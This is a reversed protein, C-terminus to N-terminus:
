SKGSESENKSVETSNSMKYIDLSALLENNNDDVLKRLNAESFVPLDKETESIESRTDSKIETSNADRSPAENLSNDTLLSRVKKRNKDNLNHAVIEIFNNKMEKPITITLIHGDSISLLNGTKISFVTIRKKDSPTTEKFDDVSDFLVFGESDVRLSRPQVIFAKREDDSDFEIGKASSYKQSSSLFSNADKVITYKIEGGISEIAKEVYKISSWTSVNEKKSFKSKINLWLIYIFTLESLRAKIYEKSTIWHAVQADSTLNARQSKGIILDFKVSVESAPILLVFDRYSSFTEGVKIRLKSGHSNEFLYITVESNVKLNNIEKLIKRFDFLTGTMINQESFYKDMMPGFGRAAGAGEIDKRPTFNEGIRKIYTFSRLLRNRKYKVKYEVREEPGIESLIETSGPLLYDLTVLTKKVDEKKYARIRFLSRNGTNKIVVNFRNADVKSVVKEISIEGRYKNTYELAALSIAAITVIIMVIESYDDNFDNLMKAIDAPLFVSFFIVAVLLGVSYFFYRM